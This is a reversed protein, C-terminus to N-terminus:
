HRLYLQLRRHNRLRRSGNRTAATAEPICEVRGNSGDLNAAWEVSDYGDEQEYRLPDWRGDSAFRGRVDQVVVMFGREAVQVPDLGCWVDQRFDGKDYPTRTLLNAMTPAGEPRYVNSRLFVGDRMRLRVNFDVRM